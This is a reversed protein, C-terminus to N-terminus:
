RRRGSPVTSRPPLWPAPYVPPARLVPSAAGGPSRRPHTIAEGSCYCRFVSQTRTLHSPSGQRGAQTTRKKESSRVSTRSLLLNLAVHSASQSSGCLFWPQKSSATSGYRRTESFSICEVRLGSIWSEKGEPTATKPIPEHTSRNALLAWTVGTYARDRIHRTTPALPNSCDGSM